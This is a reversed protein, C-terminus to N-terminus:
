MVVKWLGSVLWISALLVVTGGIFQSRAPRDDDLILLDGDIGRAELGDTLRAARSWSRVLLTGISTAVTNWRRMLRGRGAPADGLRSVQAAHMALAVDGLVFLLRYILSAVEVLAGPVGRRRFWALLDVMPTTTALLLVSLTGAVSRAFLQLGNSASQAGISLPGLTFWTDAPPQGGVQLAVSVSGVLIFAMPASFGIALVRAPIRAPGLTLAVAAIAVLPAAPVSPATLATIVLGVSLLLKEGTRIHRWPAGWAADDLAIM